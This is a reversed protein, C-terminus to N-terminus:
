QCGPGELRKGEAMERQLERPDRGDVTIGMSACTGLVEGVTGEIDKALTSVAKSRAIQIAQSLTLNGVTEKGPLKAGKELGLERKILASVPPSGVEIEFEKTKRDATVIVPAEIGDLSATLENIRAVVEGANLGLPGLAPGIPPGATARGGEVLM